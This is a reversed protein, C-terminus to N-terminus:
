GRSKRPSADSVSTACLANSDLPGPHIIFLADLLQLDWFRGRSHTDNFTLTITQDIKQAESANETM